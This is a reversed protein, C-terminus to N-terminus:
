ARKSPEDDHAVLLKGLEQMIIRDKHDYYASITLLGSTFIFVFGVLQGIISANPNPPIQGALIGIAINVIQITFRLTDRRTSGIAAIQLIQRRLSRGEAPKLVKLDKLGDRMNNFSFYAGVVAVLTWAVEIWNWNEM